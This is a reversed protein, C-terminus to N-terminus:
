LRSALRDGVLPRLRDIRAADISAPDTWIATELARRCSCDEDGAQALRQVTAALLATGHGAARQLNARIENLLDQR